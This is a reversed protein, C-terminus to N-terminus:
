NNWDQPMPNGDHPTIARGWTTLGMSPAIMRISGDMLGVSLGGTGFSQAFTATCVPATGTIRPALQWGGLTPTTAAQGSSTTVVTTLPNQLAQEGFRTYGTGNTANNHAAFDRSLTSNANCVSYGTAFGITNSTGDQIRVLALSTGNFNANFPCAAGTTTCATNAAGPTGIENGFLRINALLNTALAGNNIQSYDSPALFPPVITGAPTAPPAVSANSGIVKYLNDQECFPLLHVFITRRGLSGGTGTTGGSSGYRGYLHPLMKFNDQASHCSLAVQKLNNNTQTRAAAERVKQVAPVLLAILIAIIAIVVLLEILTFGTRRKM